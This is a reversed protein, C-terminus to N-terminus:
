IRGTAAALMVAMRDGFGRPRATARGHLDRRALAAPLVAARAPRALRLGRAERLWAM